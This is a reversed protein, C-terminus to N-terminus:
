ANVYDEIKLYISARLESIPCMIKSFITTAVSNANYNKRIAKNATDKTYWFRYDCLIKM